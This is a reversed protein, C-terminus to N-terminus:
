LDGNDEGGNININDLLNKLSKINKQKIDICEDYEDKGRDNRGKRLVEYESSRHEWGYIGDTCRWLYFIRLHPARKLLEDGKILKNKGFFLSNYKDHKIRRTKIEIFYNENYKDYEYYKGMEPNLSTRFLTGFIEELEKHIIDESKFGYSLDKNMKKYDM